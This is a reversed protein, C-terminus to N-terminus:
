DPRQAGGVRRGRLPVVRRLASAVRPNRMARFAAGTVPDYAYLHALRRWRLDFPEGDDRRRDSRRRFAYVRVGNWWKPDFDSESRFDFLLQWGTHSGVYRDTAQAVVPWSTDDIVVVAEDALLPEAMGLALYHALRGHDGDYFYVGIPRDLWEPAALARFADAEVLTVRDRVHWRELNSLLEPLVEDRTGCERFKDVAFFRARDNGIAAAITSLGKWSGVELYTEDDPLLSAALNLLALKNETAMGPVDDMLERFRRDKPVDADAEYLTPVLSRFRDVDM